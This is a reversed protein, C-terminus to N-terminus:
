LTVFWEPRTNFGTVPNGLNDTVQALVESGFLIQNSNFSLQGFNLGSLAFRDGETPNFDLVRDSGNGVALVFRDAGSGGYLFDLGTGGDLIDDGEEGYLKDVDGGGYLRDNGIGGKLIDRQNSGILLDKGGGSELRYTGTKGSADLRDDQSTGPIVGGGPPVAVPHFVQLTFTDSATANAADTAVVTLNYTGAATPTGSFVDGTLTIGNPLVTGTALSYTLNDGDIDSFTNAPITFTFPQGETASKDAIANEVTPADNVPNITLNVQAPNAAYTTGDFGNWNFSVNGYFNAAPTFTLSGLDTAEIAQNDIVAVGNLKLVGNSPLTTIQIRTLSNGDPDSFASTFDALTFAIANDEEGTKTIDSVTPTDNVNAVTLTFTDSATALAPDTAIVTLNYTGVATDAPTGSFGNGTFTVGSPLVTGEALSYTLINGDVDSFSDAPITFTFPQGETATQDAIAKKVVPADNVSSVTVTFTDQVKKGDATGELTIEAIGFQNDKYDLILNNGEITATVLTPNTNGFLSKALALSDVDSFVNTLDITSNDADENVTFSALAAKVVPADDLPNIILSVQATSNAYATGDFGNWNFTITGNFDTNALFILNVLDNAEIEQGETVAVGNLKLTGNAPLTTIKIKTLSNNDPDSFASTFDALTFAIANDEEGTKTIDSV